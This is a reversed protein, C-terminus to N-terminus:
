AYWKCISDECPANIRNSVQIKWVVASDHYPLQRLFAEWAVRHLAPRSTRCDCPRSSVPWHRPTQVAFRMLGNGKSDYETPFRPNAGLVPSRWGAGGALSTVSMMVDTQKTCSCCCLCACIWHQVGVQLICRGWWVVDWRLWILISCTLTQELQKKVRRTLATLAGLDSILSQYFLHGFTRLGM